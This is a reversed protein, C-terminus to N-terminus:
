DGEAITGATSVTEKFYDSVGSSKFKLDIIEVNERQNIYGYEVLDPYGKEILIESTPNSQNVMSVEYFYFIFYNFIYSQIFEKILLETNAVFYTVYQDLTAEEFSKKFADEKSLKTLIDNLVVEFNDVGIKDYVQKIISSTEVSGIKSLVDNRDLPTLFDYVIETTENTSSTTSSPVPESVGPDSGEANLKVSSIHDRVYEDLRRYFSFQAKEGLDKIEYSTTTKENNTNTISTIKLSFINELLWASDKSLGVLSEIESWASLNYKDVLAKLYLIDSGKLRNEYYKLLLSGFERSFDTENKDAEDSNKITSNYLFQMVNQILAASHNDAYYKTLEPQINESM